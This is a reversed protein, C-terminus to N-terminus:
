RPCSLEQAVLRARVDPNARDNKNCLVWRTGIVKAHTDSLAQSLPVAAWVHDNVYELDDYMPEVLEPHPLPENTYEDRCLPNM